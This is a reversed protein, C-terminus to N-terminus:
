DIGRHHEHSSIRRPDACRGRIAAAQPRASGGIREARGTARARPGSDIRRAFVTRVMSAEGDDGGAEESTTTGIVCAHGAMLEEWGTRRVLRCFREAFLM